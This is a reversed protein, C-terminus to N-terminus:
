DEGAMWRGEVADSVSPFLLLIVIAVALAVTAYVGTAASAPLYAAGGARRAAESLDHLSWIAGAALRIVTLWRAWSKCAVLGAILVVTLLSPRM